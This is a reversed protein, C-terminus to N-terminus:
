IKYKEPILDLIQDKLGLIERKIIIFKNSKLENASYIPESKTKLDIMTFGAESVIIDGAANDWISSEQTRFYAQAEGKAVLCFKIASGVRYEQLDLMQAIKASTKSEQSVLMLDKSNKIRNLNQPSFKLEYQQANQVNKFGFGFDKAAYFIEGSVPVYIVGLIPRLDKILAICVCFEGNQKLFERTGDLPDILWFAEDNELEDPHLIQEESCIKIGSKSLIQAIKENAALDASTLPSSDQKIFIEYASVSKGCAPYFKLIQEGALCAASKALELLESLNQM